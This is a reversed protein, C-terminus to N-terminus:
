NASIQVRDGRNAAEAIMQHNAVLTRETKPLRRERVVKAAQDMLERVFPKESAARITGAM